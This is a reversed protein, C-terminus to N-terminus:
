HFIYNSKKKKLLEPWNNLIKLRRNCHCNKEQPNEFDFDRAQLQKTNTINNELQVKYPM